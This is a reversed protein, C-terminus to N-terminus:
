LCQSLWQELTCSMDSLVPESLAAYHKRASLLSSLAVIYINGNIQIAFWGTGNGKEEWLRMALEQNDEIRSLAFGAKSSCVKCDILYAKGNKAAIVDAPQGAQNQAFLHCWYGEQSLIEVFRNEFDNGIKKNTIM